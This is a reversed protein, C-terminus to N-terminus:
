RYPNIPLELPEDPDPLREEELAEAAAPESSPAAVAQKAAAPRAALARAAPAAPLRAALGPRAHPAPLPRQPVVQQAASHVQRAQVPQDLTASPATAETKPALQEIRPRLDHAAPAHSAQSVGASRAIPADDKTLERLAVLGASVIIASFAAVFALLTFSPRAAPTSEPGPRLSHPADLLSAGSLPLAPPPDTEIDRELRTFSPLRPPPPISVGLLDPRDNTNESAAERTRMSEFDVPREGSQRGDDDDEAASPEPAVVAFGSAATPADSTSLSAAPRAAVESVEPAGPPASPEKKTVSSKPPRSSQAGEARKAKKRRRPSVVQVYVGPRNEALPHSSVDSEDDSKATAM